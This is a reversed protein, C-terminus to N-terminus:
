EPFESVHMRVTSGDPSRVTFYGGGEPVAVRGDPLYVKRVQIRLADV